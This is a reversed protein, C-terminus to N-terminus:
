RSVSACTAVRKSVMAVEWASNWSQHTVAASISASRSRPMSPLTEMLREVLVLREDEPLEMAADYVAQVRDSM